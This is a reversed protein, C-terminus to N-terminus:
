SPITSSRVRSWRYCEETIKIDEVRLEVIRGHLGCFNVEESFKLSDDASFTGRYVGACEQEHSCFHNEFAAFCVLPVQFTDAAGISRM